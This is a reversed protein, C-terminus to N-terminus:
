RCLWEMEGDDFGFEDKIKERDGGKMIRRYFHFDKVVNKQSEHLKFAIKEAVSLKKGHRAKAMWMKLPRRSQVCRVPFGSREDKAFAVGSTLLLKVYVLFRWHQSRSIRGKFVDAISVADFARARDGVKGYAGPVNEDLWLFWDDPREGVDDFSSVATEFDLTKLVKVVAAAVSEVRDRGFLVDLGRQSVVKDGAGVMQLDNIAARLDGGSRNAMSRLVGEDAVVGEKRCVGRLAVLVDSSSLPRYEIMESVRRISSLKKGFPDNATMVIPFASKGILKALAAVGGRDKQGSVGDLEDVLLVKGVGFLSMQGSAGGIVRNINDANRFDSANVELVEYGFERALAYVSCTKGCGASGYVLAAKKRSKRLDFGEIFRRLRQLSLQQGLVESGDSPVHKRVWAVGEM